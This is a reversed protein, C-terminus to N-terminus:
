AITTAVPNVIALGHYYTVLGEAIETFIKNFTSRERQRQLKVEPGTKGTIPIRELTGFDMRLMNIMGGQGDMRNVIEASPLSAIYALPYTYDMYGEKQIYEEYQIQLSNFYEEVVKLLERNVAEESVKVVKDKNSRLRGLIITRAISKQSQYTKVEIQIYDHSVFQWFFINLIREGYQAFGTFKINVKSIILDPILVELPLIVKSTTLAGPVINGSRHIHNKDHTIEVFRQGFSKPISYEHKISFKDRAHLRNDFGNKELWLSPTPTLAKVDRFYFMDARFADLKRLPISFVSNQKRELGSGKYIISM